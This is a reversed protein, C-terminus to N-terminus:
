IQIDPRENNRANIAAFLGNPAYDQPVDFGCAFACLESCFWAGREHRRLPLLQSLLIGVYDYPQDLYQRCAVWAQSSVWPAEVFDWKKPDYKIDKIRVGGDRGSASLARFMAGEKPKTMVMEVHSCPGGTFLRIALDSLRGRGKYFAFYM